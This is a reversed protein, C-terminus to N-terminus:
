AIIVKIDHYVNNLEMKDMRRIMFGIEQVVRTLDEDVSKVTYEDLCESLKMLKPIRFFLLWQYKSHLDM